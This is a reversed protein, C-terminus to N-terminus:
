CSHKENTNLQHKVQWISRRLLWLPIASYIWVQKHRNANHSIEHKIILTSLSVFIV